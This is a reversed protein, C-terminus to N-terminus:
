TPRVRLQAAGVLAEILGMVREAPARGSHSTQDERCVRAPVFAPRAAPGEHTCVISGDRLLCRLLRDLCVFRGWMGGRRWDAACM